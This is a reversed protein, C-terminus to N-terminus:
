YQMGALRYPDQVTLCVPQVRFSYTLSGPKLLYEEWPEPGCSNSGLGGVAGDIHLYIEDGREIEVTHKAEDLEEDPM